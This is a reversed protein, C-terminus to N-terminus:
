PATITAQADMIPIAAHAPHHNRWSSRLARPAQLNSLSDPGYCDSREVSYVCALIVPLNLNVAM